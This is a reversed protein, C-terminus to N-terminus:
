HELNCHVLAVGELLDGLDKAPLISQVSYNFRKSQQQM